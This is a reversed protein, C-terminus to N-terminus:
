WIFRQVTGPEQEWEFGQHLFIYGIVANIIIYWGTEMWLYTNTSRDIDINLNTKQSSTEAKSASVSEGHSHVNLRWFVWPIIFYRPEVLPASIVSLSTATLWIIVFSVHQRRDRDIVEMLTTGDDSQKTRKKRCLKHRPIICGIALICVYVCAVCISAALYKVYPHWRLIRFVYFVYHRNDALTFPHVITNFRVTIMSLVLSILYVKFRPMQFDRDCDINPLHHPLCKLFTMPLAKLVYCSIIPILLPFSFFAIYPWIYLMQPVHLTAVHNSKDGLCYLGHLEYFYLLCVLYLM